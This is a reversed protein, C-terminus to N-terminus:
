PWMTPFADRAAIILSRLIVSRDASAIASEHGLRDRQPVLSPTGRGKWLKARATNGSRDLFAIGTRTPRIDFPAGKAAALRRVNRNRPDVHVLHRGHAAVLGDKTPVASTIQGTVATDTTTKGSTDVTILRTKSDRFATFAATRTGPQM